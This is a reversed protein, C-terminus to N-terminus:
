EKNFELVDVGNGCGTCYKIAAEVAERANAGHELAGYACEAGSGMCYQVNETFDIPIPSRDYGLIKKRPTIVLLSCWNNDDKQNPPYKDIDAGKAYWDWLLVGYDASGAIGCLHGNIVRIKTITRCLGGQVSLKDAALTNGDWVIITM